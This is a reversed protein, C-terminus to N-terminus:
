VKSKEIDYKLDELIRTGKIQVESKANFPLFLILLGIPFFCILIIWAIVEPKVNIDIDVSYYKDNERIRGSIDSTYGFGRFRAGSIMIGGSSSIETNGLDQLYDETLNYVEEKPKSTEIRTGIFSKFM